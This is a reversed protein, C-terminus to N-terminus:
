QHLNCRTLKREIMCNVHYAHGCRFIAVGKNGLLIPTQLSLTCCPCALSKTQHRMGWHHAGTGFMNVNVPRRTDKEIAKALQERVQLSCM